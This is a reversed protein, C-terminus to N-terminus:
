SPVAGGDLNITQGTLWSSEDSALYVAAAGVDAATGLRGVPVRRALSDTLEGGDTDGMLGLALSNATVGDGAVEMALHRMFSIAGGKAAGYLAVGFGLGTVGAASSITVIRGWGRECMPDIVARCCNLVGYLNLDVFRAWEDPHQDRFRAPVMGEPVGANNVLVDIPKRGATAGAIGALVAQRDTVDFAAAIASGGTATLAAVMADAREPHLDNVVVSAGRAVLARAIGAGVGRGAGTVLAARGSLDFM